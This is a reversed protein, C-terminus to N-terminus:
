APPAVVGPPRDPRASLVFPIQTDPEQAHVSAPPNRALDSLILARAEATRGSYLLCNVGAFCAYLHQMDFEKRWVKLASGIEAMARDPNDAALDVLHTVGRCRVAVEAYLDGRV